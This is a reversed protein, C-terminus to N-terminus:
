RNENVIEPFCITEGPDIHDPDKVHGNANLVIELLEFPCNKGKSGYVDEIMTCLTDGSKVIQCEEVSIENTETKKKVPPRISKMGPGLPEDFVKEKLIYPTIFILVEEMAQSKSKGKFLWGFLPINKFFPVGSEINAVNEKSLGGIVTTQGDLLMLSTEARKTIITPNGLVEQAGVEDKTTIIKMRLMRGDIVHPTVELRLVAKKYEVETKGDEDRTQYPIEKGSEIVAKQNDLTTISPNSLINLKSDEQLASLQISLINQGLNQALIGLTMGKGADLNAPFDVINGAPPQHLILDGKTAEDTSFLSGQSNDLTYNGGSIWNHHGGGVKKHGIGGWQVGLDRAVDQTTEIIHAEILIQPTPRDLEKILMVFREIDFRTAQVIVSNTHEDVMVSGIPKGNKDKTLFNELNEKMKEAEAYEIRIIRASYPEVMMLDRKQAERKLDNEMDELTLVRILDGEWVYTLGYSRLIGEFLQDWRADEVNINVKGTVGENILINQGVGRALSRLLTGIEADHIKLSIKRKPLKRGSDIRIKQVTKEKIKKGIYDDKQRPSPSYGKSKEAMMKWKEFTNASPKFAKDACGSFIFVVLVALLPLLMKKGLFYFRNDM